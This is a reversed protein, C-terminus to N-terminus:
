RVHLPRRGNQSSEAGNTADTLVQLAKRPNSTHFLGLSRGATSSNSGYAYEVNIHEAALRELVKALSGPKNDMEVALVDSCTHETGLSTLVRKTPEVDDTILRLVSKSSADMVSMARINVKSDALSSCIKALRGPKNELYATVEHVFEM